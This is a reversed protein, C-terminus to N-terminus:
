AAATAAIDSCLSASSAAAFRWRRHAKHKQKGGALTKNISRCNRGGGANNAAALLQRQRASNRRKGNTMVADDCAVQDCAKESFREAMVSEDKKM